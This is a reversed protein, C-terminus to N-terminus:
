NERALKAFDVSEDQSQEQRKKDEEYSGSTFVVQGGKNLICGKIGPECVVKLLRCFGGSDHQCSWGM